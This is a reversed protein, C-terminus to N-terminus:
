QLKIMEIFTKIPQYKLSLIAICYYITHPAGGGGQM